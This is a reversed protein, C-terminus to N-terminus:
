MPDVIRSVHNMAEAPDKFLHQLFVDYEVMGNKECDSLIHEVVEVNRLDEGLIRKLEESELLGKDEPDARDFAEGLREQTLMGQMQLVANLFPAYEISGSRDQHCGKFMEKIDEKTLDCAQDEKCYRKVAKKVQDLTLIGSATADLEMFVEELQKLQSKDLTNALTFLLRKRRQGYLGFDQVGRLSVDLVPAPLESPRLLDSREVTTMWEKIYELMESASWREEADVTLCREVFTRATESIGRQQWEEGFEYTATKLREEDVACDTGFPYTGGSLMYFAIAGISWIDSAPTAEGMNGHVEPATAYDAGCVTRCDVCRGYRQSIGFDVLKIGANSGAHEYLVNEMKLNSHVVGQSHLFCVADAVQELVDVIDIETNMDMRSHLDGGTCLETILWLQRKTVYVEALKIVNPHHPLENISTVQNLLDEIVNEEQQQQLRSIGITKCAYLRHYTGKNNNGTSSSESSGETRESKTIVNDVMIFDGTHNSHQQRRRTCIRVEGLHGYAIVEHLEYVDQIDVGQHIWTTTNNTSSSRGSTDGSNGRSRNRGHQHKPSKNGWKRTRDAEDKPLNYKASIPHSHRSGM